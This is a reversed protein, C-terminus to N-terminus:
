QVSECINIDIFFNRLLVYRVTNHSISAAHVAVVPAIYCNKFIHVIAAYTAMLLKSYIKLLLSSSSFKFQENTCIQSM